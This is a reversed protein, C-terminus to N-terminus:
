MNDLTKNNVTKISRKFICYKIKLINSLSYGTLKQRSKYRFISILLEGQFVKESLRVQSKHCKFHILTCSIETCSCQYLFNTALNKYFRDIGRAWIILRMLRSNESISIQNHTKNIEFINEKSSGIFTKMIVQDISFNFHVLIVGM